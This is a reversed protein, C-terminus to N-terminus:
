SLPENALVDRTSMLAQLLRAFTLMRASTLLWFYKSACYKSIFIMSDVLDWPGSGLIHVANSDLPMWCVIRM